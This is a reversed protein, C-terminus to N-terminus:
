SEHSDGSPERMLERLRKLGRRLLGGVASESRGLSRAAEEVSLGHLHHLEVAQRQDPPLAALGQALRLLEEHRVARESPSTQDAALLAELRASSDEVAAHLSRERGADRKGADLYRRVAEALQSALIQRLWAAREAETSGRFQEGKEHARALTEQVVDSPDLKGRLRPDLQAGALLRLYDRYAELSMAAEM